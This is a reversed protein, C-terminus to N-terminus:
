PNYMSSLSSPALQDSRGKRHTHRWGSTNGWHPLFILEQVGVSECEAATVWQKWDGPEAAAGQRGRGSRGKMRDVGATRWGRHASSLWTNSQPNRGNKPVPRAAKPWRSCWPWGAAERGWPLFWSCGVPDSPWNCRTSQHVLRLLFEPSYCDWYSNQTMVRTSGKPRYGTFFSVSVGAESHGPLPSLSHYFYKPQYCLNM